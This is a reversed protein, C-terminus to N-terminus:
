SRRCSRKKKTVKKKKKKKNIGFFDFVKKEKNEIEEYKIYNENDDKDKSKELQSEIYKIEEETLVASLAFNSLILLFVLSFFILKPYLKYLDNKALM